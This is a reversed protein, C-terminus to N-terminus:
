RECRAKQEGTDSCGLVAVVGGGDTLELVFRRGDSCTARWSAFLGRRYELFTSDIVDCNAHDMSQLVRDLTRNRESPSLRAMADHAANGTSTPIPEAAAATGLSLQACVLLAFAQRSISRLYLTSQM